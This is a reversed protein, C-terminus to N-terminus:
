TCFPYFSDLILESSRGLTCKSSDLFSPRHQKGVVWCFPWCLIENDDLWLQTLRNWVSSLHHLQFRKLHNNDLKLEQLSPMADFM